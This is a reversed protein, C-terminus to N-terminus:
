GNYQRGINASIGIPSDAAKYLVRIYRYLSYVYACSFGFMKGGDPFIEDNM